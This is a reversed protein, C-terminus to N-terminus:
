SKAGWLKRLKELAITGRIVRGVGQVAFHKKSHSAKVSPLDLVSLLNAWDVSNEFYLVVYNHEELLEEAFDVEPKSVTTARTSIEEGMDALLARLSEGQPDSRKLIEALKGEDIKALAALPDLSALVLDEERQTLDVYVVPIKDENRKRAIQVRLHGDVLNGTRKNVIVNQVWGVEKLLDEVAAEQEAPHTRWNAPNAVLKSVSVMGDGVIRNKLASSGNVQAPRKKTKM